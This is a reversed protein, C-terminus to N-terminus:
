NYREDSICAGTEIIRFNRLFNRKHEELSNAATIDVVILGELLTHM